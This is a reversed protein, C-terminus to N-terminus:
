RTNWRSALTATQPQASGPSSTATSNAPWFFVALASAFPLHITFSSGMGALVSARVRVTRERAVFGSDRTVFGSNRTVSMRTPSTQSPEPWDLMAIVTCDDFLKSCSFAAAFKGSTRMNVTSRLGCRVGCLSQLPEHFNVVGSFTPGNEAAPM